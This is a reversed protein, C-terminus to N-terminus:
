TRSPRSSGAGPGGDGLNGARGITRLVADGSDRGVEHHSLPSLTKRTMTILRHVGHRNPFVIDVGEIRRLDPALRRLSTGLVAASKPWDARRRAQEDVSRELEGLLETATGRWGRSGNLIGLLPSTLPSAQLTLVRSRSRNRRYADLFAGRPWRLLGEAATVWRIPDAMRPLADIDVREQGDFSASVATLISGLLLPRALEFSGWFDSESMRRGDRIAPLDIVIARDLLDARTVIGGIGNLIVPRAVHVLFEEDDSYLQRTSFGAGTALRALADSQWDAVSSVNDFSAIWSNSSAIAMSRDDRPLARDGVVNPDVLLRLMRATSTKGSDQEGGLVLVVYPGHPRFAALLWGALLRYQDEDDANVFPRLMELSGGAVPAPLPELGRPRRFPVPSRDILRWGAADIEVVRWQDDGLDLYIAGRHEAIRLGVKRQPRDFRAMSSLIELADALPQPGAARRNARWYTGALWERFARSRLVLTEVHAPEGAVDISAYRQDGDHFLECAEEAIAVLAQAQSPERESM